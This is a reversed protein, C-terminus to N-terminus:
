FAVQLENSYLDCSEGRYRCLRFYWTGSEYENEMIMELRRIEQDSVYVSGWTKSNTMEPPLPSETAYVVDPAFLSQVLSLLSGEKQVSGVGKQPPYTPNQTRSWVLKYGKATSGDGSVEWSFTFFRDEQNELKLDLTVAGWEVAAVDVVSSQTYPECKKVPATDKDGSIVIYRCVRM